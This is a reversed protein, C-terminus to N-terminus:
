ESYDLYSGKDGKVLEIVMDSLDNGDPTHNVMVIQRGPLNRLTSAILDRRTTDQSVLAEDLWLLGGAGGSLLDGIGILMSLAILSREGGSLFHMPDERGDARVVSPTFEEDLNIGVFEDATMSSVIASTSSAIEPAIRSITDKRFEAIMHSTAARSDWIKRAENRRESEEELSKLEVTKVDIASKEAYYREQLANERLTHNDLSSKLETYQEEVGIVADPSVSSVLSSKLSEIEEVLSALTTRAESIETELEDMRSFSEKLNKLERGRDLLTELDSRVKALESNKDEVSVESGESEVALSQSDDHITKEATSITELVRVLEDSAKEKAREHMDLEACQSLLTDKRYKCEQLQKSVTEIQTQAQERLDKFSNLLTDPDSISQHCTPCSVTHGTLSDISEQYLEVSNQATTLLAQFSKISDETTTLESELNDRSYPAKAKKQLELEKKKGTQTALTQEAHSINRKLNEIRTTREAKKQMLATITKETESIRARLTQAEEASNTFETEIEERSKGALKAILSELLKQSRQLGLETYEKEKVKFEIKESHQQYAHMDSLLSNWAKLSKETKKKLSESESSVEEMEDVTTSFNQELTDISNQLERIEESPDRYGEYQLRAEKEAEKSFKLALSMKDVGSIREIIERRKAPSANVLDDLEKQKIAFAKTFGEENIGLRKKLWSVATTPTTKTIPAAGGNLKIDATVTGKKNMSRTVEIIDGEHEFTVVVVTKDKDDAKFNRVDSQKKDKPLVGFLTWIVADLFSSKGNGNAGYISTMGEEVPTFVSDSIAGFNKLHVSKLIFM